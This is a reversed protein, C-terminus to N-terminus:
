TIFETQLDELSKIYIGIIGYDENKIAVYHSFSTVFYTDKLHNKYLMM